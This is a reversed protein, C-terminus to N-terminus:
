YSNISIGNLIWSIDKAVKIIYLNRKALDGVNLLNIIGLLTIVTLNYYILVVVKNIIIAKYGKSLSLMAQQNGKNCSISSIVNNPTKNGRFFSINSYIIM